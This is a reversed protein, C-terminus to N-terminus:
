SCLAEVEDADMPLVTLNEHGAETVLINNELSSM